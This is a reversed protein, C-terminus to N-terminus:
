GTPSRGTLEGMQILRRKQELGRERDRLHEERVWMRRVLLTAMLVFFGMFVTWRLIQEFYVTNRVQPAMTRLYYFMDDPAPTPIDAPWFPHYAFALALGFLVFHEVIVLTAARPSCVLCAGVLSIFFIPLYYSVPGGSIAVGFAIALGDALFLITALYKEGRRLIFFLYIVLFFFAAGFVVDYASVVGSPEGGETVFVLLLLVVLLMWHLRIVWDLTDRQNDSFPM